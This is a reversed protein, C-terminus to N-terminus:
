SDIPTERKIRRLIAAGAETDVSEVILEPYENIWLELMKKEGNRKADDVIIM